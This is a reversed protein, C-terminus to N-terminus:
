TALQRARRAHSAADLVATLGFVQPSVGSLSALAETIAKRQEGANISAAAPQVGLSRLREEAALCLLAVEATAGEARAAGALLATARTLTARESATITATTKM